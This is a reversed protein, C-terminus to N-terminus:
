IGTRDIEIEFPTEDGTGDAENDETSSVNVDRVRDKILATTSSKNRHKSKRYNQTGHM